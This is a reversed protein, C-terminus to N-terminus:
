ISSPPCLQSDTTVLLTYVISRFDGEKRVGFAGTWMSSTSVGMIAIGSGVGRKRREIDSEIQEVGDFKL